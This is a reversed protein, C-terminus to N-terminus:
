AFGGRELIARNLALGVNEVTPNMSMLHVANFAAMEARPNGFLQVAQGHVPDFGTPRL